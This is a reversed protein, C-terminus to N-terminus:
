LALKSYQLAKDLEKQGLYASAINNYCTAIQEDLNIKSCSNAIITFIKLAELSEKIANDFNELVIEISSINILNKAIETNQRTGFM